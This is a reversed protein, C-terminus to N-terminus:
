AAVALMQAAHKNPHRRGSYGHSTCFATMRKPGLRAASTPTPCRTLLALAISSTTKAFIANTKVAM